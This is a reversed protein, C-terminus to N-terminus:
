ALISNVIMSPRWEEISGEAQAHIDLTSNENHQKFIEFLNVISDQLGFYKIYSKIGNEIIIREKESVIAKEIEVAYCRGFVTAITAYKSAIKMYLDLVEKLHEVDGRLAYSGAKDLANNWQKQLVKGSKTEQLELNNDLLTYATVMDENELATFFKQKSDILAIMKTSEEKFDSFNELIKLLKLAPIFEDEAILKRSKIYLTDSYKVITDYEPFEKLFPHLKVLESLIKFDKKILAAKFRKYINGKVFIEQIFKTKESVGRYPALIQRAKEQEKPNLSCKQAVAFSNKWKTELSKYLKSEKYIPHANAISYALALKGEKAMKAFKAFDVYEQMVKQIQKNKAPIHKFNHFLKKATEKDGSQLYLKAKAVTKEWVEEIHAYAPTYGLLPNDDIFKGIEEFNRKQVLKEVYVEDKYLPYFLVDGNEGGVILQQSADDFGLSTIATSLKMYKRSVLKYNDLNYVLIYGLKTGLFLFKDDSSKIVQTVDDHIGNLRAIVKASFVDWVIAQSNKDVSLLRHKNLFLVKMVPASHAKLKHKIGMMSLNYLTIKKDYSATAIWQSNASFAIDNITDAHAPIIFSTKGSKIDVVFVKGDDGCSFMYRCKPDIGVCTTEGHHKDIKAILKKAKVNYLKSERCDASLTAFYKGNNSFDVVKNNYRLHNTKGNFGSIIELTDKKLIRVTTKADVVLISGDQLVKTVIIPENFNIEKFPLM